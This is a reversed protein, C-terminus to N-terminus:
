CVSFIRPLRHYSLSSEPLSMLQQMFLLASLCANLKDLSEATTPCDYYVAIGEKSCEDHCLGSDWIHFTVWSGDHAPALAEVIRDEFGVSVEGELFM